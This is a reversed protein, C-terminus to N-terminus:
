SCFIKSDLGSAMSMMFLEPPILCTLLLTTSKNPYLASSNIPFGMSINIGSRKRLFWTM